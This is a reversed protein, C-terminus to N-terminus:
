IINTFIIPKRPKGNDLSEESSNREITQRPLGHTKGEISALVTATMATAM